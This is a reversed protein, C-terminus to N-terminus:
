LQERLRIPETGTLIGGSTVNSPFQGDVLGSTPDTFDGSNTTPSTQVQVKTTGSALWGGFAGFNMYTNAHLLDVIEGIIPGSAPTSGVGVNPNVSLKTLADSNLDVILGASM